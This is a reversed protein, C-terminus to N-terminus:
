DTNARQRPTIIRSKVSQLNCIVTCYYHRGQTWLRPLQIYESRGSLPLDDLIILCRPPEKKKNKSREFEKRKRSQYEIIKGIMQDRKDPNSFDDFRFKKPIFDYDHNVNCTESFVIVFHFQYNSLYMRILDVCLVSKGSNRKSIILTCSDAKLKPVKQVEVIPPTESEM